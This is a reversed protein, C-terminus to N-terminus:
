DNKKDSVSEKLAADIEEEDDATLGALVLAPGAGPGFIFSYFLAELGAQWNRFGIAILGGIWLVVADIVMFKVSSNVDKGWLDKLVASISYGYEPIIVVLVLYIWVFLSLIGAFGFARGSLQASKKALKLDKPDPDKVMWYIVGLLVIGPGGLISACSMWASSGTPLKFLAFSLLLTPLNMPVSMSIRTLNVGGKGRGLCYSPVWLLPFIVSIGLIQYLLGVIIPYRIPGKADKRGAEITIWVGIPLAIVMTTIWVLMGAPYHKVLDLLFQTILCCLWNFAGFGFRADYAHYGTKEAFESLPIDPNTCAAVIPEMTPGSVENVKVFAWAGLAMSTVSVAVAKISPAM